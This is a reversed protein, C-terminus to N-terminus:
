QQYALKKRLNGIWETVSVPEMISNGNPLTTTNIESNNKIFEPVLPEAKKVVEDRFEGYFDRAMKIQRNNVESKCYRFSTVM